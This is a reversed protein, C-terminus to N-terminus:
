DFMIILTIKIGINGNTEPSGSSEVPGLCFHVIVREM